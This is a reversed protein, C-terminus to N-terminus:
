TAPKRSTEGERTVMNPRSGKTAPKAKRSTIREMVDDIDSLEDLTEDAEVTRSGVKWGYTGRYATLLARYTGVDPNGATFIASGLFVREDPKTSRGEETALFEALAPYRTGVFDKYSAPEVPGFFYDWRLKLRAMVTEFQELGPGRQGSVIRSFHSQGIGSRMVARQMAGRTDAGGAEKILEELLRHMRRAATGPSYAMALVIAHHGNVHPM